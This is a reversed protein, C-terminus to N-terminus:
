RRRGSSPVAWNADLSLYALAYRRGFERYSESNFHLKDGRHTLRVASAFATFPVELPITALQRNVTAALPRDPLVFEGLQGVVVPVEPAGLERRLATIMETWRKLYTQADEEKMSDTEGQHWLIGRLVGSKQAAKTRRVADTFLEGGPKWEALASGGMAAPILGITAGPQADLLTKAFSRGLGVGIRDPRDFHLPDVAPVWALDKNLTFVGPIPVRDADEVTGRGAMNSQGILLFLQLDKPESRQPQSNQALAASQFSLVVLLLFWGPKM